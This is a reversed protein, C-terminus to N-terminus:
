RIKIKGVKVLLPILAYMVIGLICVFFLLLSAIIYVLLSSCSLNMAAIWGTIFIILGMKEIYEIKDKRKLEM